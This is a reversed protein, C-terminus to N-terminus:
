VAGKDKENCNEGCEDELAHSVLTLDEMKNDIFIM